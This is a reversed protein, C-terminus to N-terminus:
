PRGVRRQLRAEFDFAWDTFAWFLMASSIGCCIMMSVWSFTSYEPKESGFRINGYKSAALFLLLLVIAFTLVQLPTGLVRTVQHFLAEALENTAAPFAAFCVVLAFIFVATAILLPRNTRSSSHM